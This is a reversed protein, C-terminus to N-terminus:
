STDLPGFPVYLVGAPTRAGRGPRLCGGNHGGSKLTPGCPVAGESSNVATSPAYQMKGDSFLGCMAVARRRGHVPVLAACPHVTRILDATATGIPYGKRVKVAAHPPPHRMTARAGVQLDPM